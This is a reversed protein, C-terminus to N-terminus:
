FNANVQRRGARKVYYLDTAIAAAINPSLKFKAPAGPM